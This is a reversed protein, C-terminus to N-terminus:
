LPDVCIFTGSTYIGAYDSFQWLAAIMELIYDSSTQCAPWPNYPDVQVCVATALLVVLLALVCVRVRVCM